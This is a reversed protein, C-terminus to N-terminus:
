AGPLHDPHRRHQRLRVGGGHRQVGRRQHRQQPGGLLHHQRPSLNIIKAGADRAHTIATIITATDGGGNTDLVRIPLITANPAVQLIINAVATGHGYGVSYGITNGNVEQPTADNGIFDKANALDLKGTFSPHRLNIGSNIVAVKVGRGLEPVLSQAQSLKIANWLPLNGSFTTALATSLTGTSWAGYGTSWAGYGTTWAGFGTSWIGM